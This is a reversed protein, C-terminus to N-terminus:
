SIHEPINKGNRRSLPKIIKTYKHRYYVLLLEFDIKEFYIITSLKNVKFKQYRPSTANDFAM